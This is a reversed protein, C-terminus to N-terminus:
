TQLTLTQVMSSITAKSEYYIDGSFLLLNQSTAGSSRESTTKTAADTKAINVVRGIKRIAPPAATKATLKIEIETVLFHGNQWELIPLPKPFTQGFQRCIM